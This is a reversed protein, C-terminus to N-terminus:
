VTAAGCVDTGGVGSWEGENGISITRKSMLPPM